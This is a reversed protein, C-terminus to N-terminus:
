GSAGGGGFKGGSVVTVIGFVVILAIVCAAVPIYLCQSINVLAGLAFAGLTPSALGVLFASGSEGHFGALLLLGGIIGTLFAVIKGARNFNELFPVNFDESHDTPVVEETNGKQYHWKTEIANIGSFLGDYFRGDKISPKISEDIIKKVLLDPLIGEVGYGTDIRTIKTDKRVVILIGNDKSKKGIKWKEAVRISFQEIEEPATTPVILIAIHLDSNVRIEEVRRKLAFMEELNLSSAQDLVDGPPRPPVTAQAFCSSAWV